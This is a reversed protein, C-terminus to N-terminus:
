GPVAKWHGGGGHYINCSLELRAGCATCRFYYGITDPMGRGALEDRRMEVYPFPQDYPGWPEVPDPVLTGAALAQDIRAAIRGYQHADDIKRGAKLRRCDPCLDKGGTGRATGRATGQTAKRPRKGTGTAAKSSRTM